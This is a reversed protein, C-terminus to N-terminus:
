PDFRNARNATLSFKKHTERVLSLVPPSEKSMLLVLPKAVKTLRHSNSESVLPLRIADPPILTGITSTFKKLVLKGICSASKAWYGRELNGRM